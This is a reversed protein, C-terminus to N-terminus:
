NIFHAMYTNIYLGSGTSPFELSFQRGQPIHLVTAKKDGGALVQELVIGGVPVVVDLTGDDDSGTSGSRPNGRFCCSRTGRGAVVVGRSPFSTVSAADDAMVTTPAIKVPHRPGGIGCSVLVTHLRATFVFAATPM